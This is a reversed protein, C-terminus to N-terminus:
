KREAADRKYLPLHRYYVELTLLALCTTGLRGCSGGITGGDPDWSGALDGAAVVQLQVLLDRVFPNWQKSWAPGGHFHVVQTAYYLFYMDFNRRQPATLLYTVGDAMGPHDATWGDMYNRCLLGVSTMSPSAVPGRYGYTAKTSGASVRDLFKRAKAFVEDPVPIQGGLKASHLAQIQWGVISTDGTSKPAYGWSGDDGQSDIIHQVAKRTAEHLLTRDNTMGYAECLSVTAIAHTYMCQGRTSGFSGDTKQDKILWKLGGEVTPRFPGNVHTYGAALFPLLSMGSAAVPDNEADPA